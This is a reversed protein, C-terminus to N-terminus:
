IKLTGARLRRGVVLHLVVTQVASFCNSAVWYLSLASCFKLAAMIAIVSPVIILFLRMQEPIDPNAVIMLATTAGAILAFLTDPRLLNPVWLFRVGDGVNRLAQFMGLFLPMQALGGLLSKGDILSLEHKRYFERMQQIYVDPKTAYKDKLQQLEPQLKTMKKQRICGRYAASWSIPLLLVRLLLTATIIALGLGLGVESSLTDVLGRLTDLWFTWLNM